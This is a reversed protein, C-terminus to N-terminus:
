RRRPPPPVITRAHKAALLGAMNAVSTCWNTIDVSQKKTPKCEGLSEVPDFDSVYWRFVTDGVIQGCLAAYRERLPANHLVDRVRARMTAGLPALAQSVLPEPMRGNKGTLDKSLEELLSSLRQWVLPTEVCGLWWNVPTIGRFVALGFAIRCHPPANNDFACRLLLPLEWLMMEIAAAADPDSRRIKKRIESVARGIASTESPLDGTVTDADRVAPEFSDDDWLDGSAGFEARFEILAKTFRALDRKREHYYRLVALRACRRMHALPARDVNCEEFPTKGTAKRTKKFYLEFFDGFVDATEQEDRTKAHIAGYIRDRFPGTLILEVVRNLADAADDSDPEAIQARRILCRLTAYSAWAIPQGVPTGSLEWKKAPPPGNRPPTRVICLFLLEDLVERELAEGRVLKQVHTLVEPPIAAHLLAWMGTGEQARWILEADFM